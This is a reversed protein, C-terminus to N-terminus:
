FIFISCYHLLLYKPLFRDWWWRGGCQIPILSLGGLDLFWCSVLEAIATIFSSYSSATSKEHFVGHYKDLSFSHAWTVNMQIAM